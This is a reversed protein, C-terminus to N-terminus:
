GDFRKECSNRYGCVADCFYGNDEMPYNGSYTEIDRVTRDAWQAAEDLDEMKFPVITPVGQVFHFFILRKPYEGFRKQVAGAYLYLQRAKEKLKDGTFPKACKYDTMILDGNAAMGLRDVYGQFRYGDMDLVFHEEVWVPETRWGKFNQFFRDAGAKWNDMWGRTHPVVEAAYRASWEEYAQAPALQGRDIKEFVSHGLTGFTNFFNDEGKDGEIYNRKWAHKCTDWSSLRSFSYIRPEQTMTKAQSLEM